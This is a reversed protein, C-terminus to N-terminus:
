GDLDGQDYISTFPPEMARKFANANYRGIVMDILGRSHGAREIEDPSLGGELYLSLIADLDAYTIGMSSEDSQDASLEASPAKTLVNSPIPPREGESRALSNRWESLAYVDTKYIGGIPAYAGATDGYLTSYGMAAESRNGTNLMMWGHENSLAMICMMRLRAQSNEAAVGVLDRGTGAKYAAAFAYYPEVISITEAEIRLACALELADTVSHDSSYPGPLLVGHVRSSGLADVAMTAVLCSDIGGSLGIVADHFGADSIFRELESVCREYVKALDM